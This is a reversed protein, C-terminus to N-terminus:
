TKPVRASPGFWIGPHSPDIVDAYKVEQRIFRDVAPCDITAKQKREELDDLVAQILIHTLDQDRYAEDVETRDLVRREGVMRYTLTGVQAGAAYLVYRSRERDDVVRVGKTSDDLLVEAM